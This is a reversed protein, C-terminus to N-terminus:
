IWPSDHLPVRFKCFDREVSSESILDLSVHVKCKQRHQITIRIHTDLEIEHPVDADEGYPTYAFLNCTDM